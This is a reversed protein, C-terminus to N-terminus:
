AHVKGPPGAADFTIELGADGLLGATEHLPLGMVGSYSGELRVVFAEAAGQIAYGGAKGRPEGSAVYAEVLGPPLRAFTVRSVSVAQRTTGGALLTVASVVEHTRGSLRQLMRRAGAADAPKGFVEGDLVVETDSGLVLATGSAAGDRRGLLALGAAAKGTAVRCVYDHASEGAARQEPIDVDLPHFAIGLRALLERRRPSKSALHLM